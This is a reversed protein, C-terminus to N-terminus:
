SEYNIRVELTDEKDSLQSKTKRLEHSKVDLDQEVQALKQVIKIKEVEQYEFQKNFQRLEEDKSGLHRRLTDIQDVAASYIM